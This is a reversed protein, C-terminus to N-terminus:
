DGVLSILAGDRAGDDAGEDVGDSSGDKGSSSWDKSQSWYSPSGPISM